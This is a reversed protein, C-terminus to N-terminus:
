DDGTMLTTLPCDDVVIHPRQSPDIHTIQIERLRSSCFTLTEFPGLATCDHACLTELNANASVVDELCVAAVATSNIDCVELNCIGLAECDIRRFRYCESISLFRLSSAAASTDGAEQVQVHTGPSVLFFCARLRLDVLSPLSQLLSELCTDDLLCDSVFLSQLGQYMCLSKGLLSPTTICDSMMVSVVSNNNESGQDDDESESNLCPDGFDGVDGEWRVVLLTLGGIAMSVDGSLTTLLDCRDSDILNLVRVSSFAGFVSLIDGHCPNMM